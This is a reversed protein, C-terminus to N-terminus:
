GKILYTNGEEDRFQAFTGWPMRQPEGEFAVGKAKMREYTADIDDVRIRDFAKSIKWM